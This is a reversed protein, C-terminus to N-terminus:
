PSLLSLSLRALASGLILTQLGASWLEFYLSTCALFGEQQDKLRTLADWDLSHTVQPVYTNELVSARNARWYFLSFWFWSLEFLPSAQDVCTLVAYDVWMCLKKPLYLVASYIYKKKRMIKKIFKRKEM